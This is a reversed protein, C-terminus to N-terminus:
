IVRNMMRRMSCDMGTRKNIVMKENMCNQHYHAIKQRIHGISHDIGADLLLLLSSQTIAVASCVLEFVDVTSQAM